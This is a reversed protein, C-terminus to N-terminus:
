DCAVINDCLIRMGVQKELVACCKHLMCSSNDRRFVVCCSSTCAASICYVGAQTIRLTRKKHLICVHMSVKFPTFWTTTPMLCMWGALPATPEAVQRCMGWYLAM